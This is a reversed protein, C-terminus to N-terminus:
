GMIANLRSELFYYQNKISLTEEETKLIEKLLDEVNITELNKEILMMVSYYASLLKIGQEYNRIYLENELARGDRM